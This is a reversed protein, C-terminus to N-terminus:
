KIVSSPGAYFDEGRRGITSQNEKGDAVLKSVTVYKGNILGLDFSKGNTEREATAVKSGDDNSSSEGSPQKGKERERERERERGRERKRKEEEEGRKFYKVARFSEM